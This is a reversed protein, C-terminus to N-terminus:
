SEPANAAEQEGTSKVFDLLELIDAWPNILEDSDLIWPFEVERGAALGNMVAHVVPRQRDRLRAMVFRGELIGQPRNMYATGRLAELKNQPLRSAEKTIELMHDLEAPTYPRFTRRVAAQGGAAGRYLDDREYSEYDSHSANGVLIYSILGPLDAEPHKRLRYYRERKAHRLAGEALELLTHLPYHSHAISIGVSVSTKRGLRETATSYFSNVLTKAVGFARDATTAIVLDDGGLLLVDFPLIKATQGIQLPGAIADALADVLSDEVAKSTSKMEELTGLGGFLRGLGDGDAYLLALMGEPSGQSTLEDFNDARRKDALAERVLPNLRLRQWFGPWSDNDIGSKIQRDREIKLDCARCVARERGGPDIRSATAYLDGCSECPLLFSHTPATIFAPTEGKASRLRMGLRNKQRADIENGAEQPITVAALNIRVAETRERCAKEMLSIADALHSEDLTLLGSGGGAFIVESEPAIKKVVSPLVVRNLEDLLASAGRIERLRDTAFIYSKIASIDFSLLARGM